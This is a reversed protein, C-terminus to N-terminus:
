IGRLDKIVEAVMMLGAVAPLYSISAPSDSDRDAKVPEETSFVVKIKKIGKKRLEKRIIKALPCMHTKEIFDIKLKSPDVKNGAGMASIVPIGAGVAKEIIALKAPIDDVADVVYDYGRPFYNEVVNKTVKGNYSLLKLQPNIDKLRESLVEVKSRGITSELAIVQRNINTRDVIDFDVITLDGIGARVLGEACHGGVGGVGFVIVSSNQIKKFDEEGILAETRTRM